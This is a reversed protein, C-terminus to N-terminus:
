QCYSYKFGYKNLLNEIEEASVYFEVKKMENCYLDNLMIHVNGTKMTKLHPLLLDVYDVITANIILTKPNSTERIGLVRLQSNLIITDGEENTETEVEPEGSVSIINGNTIYESCNEYVKTFCICEIQGTLDELVFKAMQKGDSKRRLLQVDKIRGCVIARDVKDDIESISINSNARLLEAKDDLPHGSAYYGLYEAEFELCEERTYNPASTNIVPSVWSENLQSYLADYDSEKIKKLAKKCSEFYEDTIEYFVKRKPCIDDLAGALILNQIIGKKIGTICSRIVLDKYSKFAGHLNREAIIAEAGGKVSKVNGLGFIINGDSLTFSLDSKNINPAYVQIGNDKADRIYLPIKNQPTFCLLATYYAEPYYRKLYATEYSLVSYAAAHSKNFAYSAFELLETWFATIDEKKAGKATLGSFFKDKSAELEDLHKKSMARRIIDAEGLSFGAIKNFIQQIQEQYVPKGYTNSLIDQMDGVIYTPKKRGFKVETIEPIYQMPGPRYAANLLVVDDICNPKFSVLTQKMGSSEFQFVGNTKGKGYIDAIVTNDEARAIQTFDLAKNENKRIIEASKAIIDLNKLALFDMKLLGLTKECAVMDAQVVWCNAKESWYMPAYESVPKDAIIVGAAHIGTHDPIGEILLTDDVLKKITPNSQYMKQFDDDKLALAVTMDPKAPILKAVKDAVDYPVGTVRAVGRVASRGSLMSETYINCITSKLKDDYSQKYEYTKDVYEIVKQRISPAFDTDIDPMSVREPNLFREFILGYRLPDIGTIDCLYCVLSGAASGRGLGVKEVGDISKAYVIFDQVIAIYSSYGMKDIIALEYTLRKEFEQKWKESQENYNPYKNLINGRAFKELYQIPTLESKTDFTPLHMQKTYYVGCMEAIRSTNQIAQPVDIFLQEMEQNSKFYLQDNGTRDAVDEIPTNYRLSAVIDRKRKDEKKAYHVDNSVTMPIGTDASLRKLLPLLYLEEEVGHNQLEIYYNGQGFISNFQLATRKAEEYVDGIVALQQELAAIENQLKIIPESAKQAAKIGAKINKLKTNTTEYEKDISPYQQALAKNQRDENILENLKHTNEAIESSLSDAKFSGIETTEQKIKLSEIKENLKKIRTSVDKGIAKKANARKEKIATLAMETKKLMSELEKLSNLTSDANCKKIKAKKKEIEKVTNQPRLLIQSLHGSMCASTAILHDHGEKGIAVYENLLNIDMQPFGNYKTLQSRNNLKFLAKVGAWDKAYLCIHSKHEKETGIYAEIGPVFQVSRECAESFYAPYKSVYPMMKDTPQRISDFEGISKLITSIENADVGYQTLVSELNKKERKTREKLGDFLRVMNGHDTISVANRGFKEASDFIESVTTVADRYSGTSHIHLEQYGNFKQKYCKM